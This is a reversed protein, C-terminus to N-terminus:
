GALYRLNVGSSGNPNTFVISDSAELTGSKADISYRQKKSRSVGHREVCVHNNDGFEIVVMGDVEIYLSNLSTLGINKLIVTARSGAPLKLTSMERVLRPRYATPAVIKTSIKERISM